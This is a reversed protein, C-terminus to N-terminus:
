KVRRRPTLWRLAFPRMTLWCAPSADAAGKRAVCSLVKFPLSQMSSRRQRSNSWGRPELAGCGPGLKRILVSCSVTMKRLLTQTEPGLPQHVTTRNRPLGVAAESGTTRKQPPGAAEVLGNNRSAAIQSTM